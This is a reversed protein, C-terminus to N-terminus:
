EEDDDELSFLLQQIAKIAEINNNKNQPKPKLNLKREINNVQRPIAINFEDEINQQLGKPASYSRGNFTPNQVENLYDDVVKSANPNDLKDVNYGIDSALKAKFALIAGQTALRQKTDLDKSNLLKQAEEIFQKDAYRLAEKREQPTNKTAGRQYRLDHKLTLNDLDDVPPANVIDEKTIIEDKDFYRGASYSPGAWNGWFKFKGKALNELGEVASTFAKGKAIGVPNLLDPLPVMVNNKWLKSRLGKSWSDINYKKDKLEQQEEETLSEGLFREKLKTGLRSFFNDNAISM